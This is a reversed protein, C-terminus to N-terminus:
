TWKCDYEESIVRLTKDTNPGEPAATPYNETMQTLGWFEVAFSERSVPKPHKELAKTLPIVGGDVWSPVFEDGNALALFTPALDHHSSVTHSIKGKPVGPGRVIFPVSNITTLIKSSLNLITKHAVYKIDEEM